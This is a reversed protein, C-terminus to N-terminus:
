KTLGPIYDEIVTDHLTIGVVLAKVPMPAAADTIQSSSEAVEYGTAVATATKLFDERKEDWVSTGPPTVKMRAVIRDRLEGLVPRELISGSQVGYLAGDLESLKVPPVIFSLFESGKATQGVLAAGAEALCFHSKFYSRTLLAIVFDASTLKGLIHQVFFSGNPITGKASSCFIDGHPVGIGLQLLDVFKAAMEKDADAHSIFLNM